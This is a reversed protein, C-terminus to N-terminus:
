VTCPQELLSLAADINARRAGAPRVQYATSFYAAPDALFRESNM